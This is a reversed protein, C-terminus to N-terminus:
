TVSWDAGDIAAFSLDASALVTQTLPPSTLPGNNSPDFEEAAAPAPAGPDNITATATTSFVHFSGDGCKVSWSIPPLPALPVTHPSGAKLISDTSTQPNATATTCGLPLNLTFKTDVKVPDKGGSPPPSVASNTVSATASVPFAVGATTTGGPITTTVSNLIVDTKIPCPVDIAIKADGTSDGLPSNTIIFDDGGDAPPEGASVNKLDLGVIAPGGLATIRIRDMFGKQPGITFTGTKFAVSRWVNWVGPVQGNAVSIDNLAAAGAIGGGMNHGITAFTPPGALPGDPGEEGDALDVDQDINEVQVDEDYLLDGGYAPNGPSGIYPAIILPNPPYVYPGPPPDDNNGLKIKSIDAVVIDFAFGALRNDGLTGPLQDMVVDIYFVSGSAVSICDNIVGLTTATNDPIPNPLAPPPANDQIDADISVKGITGAAQASHSNFGGVQFALLALLAVFISGIVIRRM